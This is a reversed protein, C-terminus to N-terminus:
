YIVDTLLHRRTMGNMKWHIHRSNSRVKFFYQNVMLNAFDKYGSYRAAMFDKLDTPKTVSTSMTKLMDTVKLVYNIDQITFNVYREAQLSGNEMERLFDVRLTKNAIDTNNQWLFEYVDASENRM